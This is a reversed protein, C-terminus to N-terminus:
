KGVIESFHANITEYKMNALKEKLKKEKKLKEIEEIEKAQTYSDLKEKLETWKALIIDKERSLIEFERELILINIDNENGIRYEM